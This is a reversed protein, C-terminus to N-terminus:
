GSNGTEVVILPREGRVALRKIWVRHRRRIFAQWEPRLQPYHINGVAARHDNADVVAAREHWSAHDIDRNRGGFLQAHGIRPRGFDFKVDYMLSSVARGRGIEDPQYRY